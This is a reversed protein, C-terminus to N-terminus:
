QVGCGPATPRTDVQQGVLKKELSISHGGGGVGGVGGEEPFEIRDQNQVNTQSARQLGAGSNVVHRRGDM